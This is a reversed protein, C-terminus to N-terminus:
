RHRLGRFSGDGFYCQRFGDLSISLLGKYYSEVIRKNAGFLLKYFKDDPIDTFNVTMRDSNTYKEYFDDVDKLLGGEVAMKYLKTGPYPTVPKITRLRQIQFIDQNIGNYKILFETDKRLTEETDGPCGWLINLGPWLGAAITNDVGIYAEEVMQKKNMLDLVNQDLSEIGYNVYVCGSSKMEKLVEPIAVNLRGMCDWTIPLNAKRIGEAFNLAIKKSSMLNEDEFTFHTIGYDKHLTSMEEVVGEVSRIRYGKYMRYCFACNYPCGRSALISIRRDTHKPAIHKDLVYHEMPFLDWAPFLIWDLNKILKQRENIIIDNGDKYAIGNVESLPKKHELSFLLNKIVWEGEGLVVIDANMKKLFHEPAATPGNSGLIIIPRNKSRNIHKCFNVAKKYQQYGYIGLGIVDFKNEDLFKTIHKDDYHKVEQNYIEVDHGEHRVTSALYAIGLPFVNTHSMKDLVVLLVRM